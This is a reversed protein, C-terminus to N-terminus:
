RPPAGFAAVGSAELAAQDHSLLVTAGFKQELERLYRRAEGLRTEDEPVVLLRYLWPKPVDREIGAHLNATDGALVIVRAGHDALRAVVLQTGPTHGAAAVVSVGPFGPLDGLPAAPLRTVHLCPSTEISRLARRTLYYPHDAQAAGLLVEIPRASVRCLSAIGQVHDDHLHTFVIGAVRDRARGLAAGVDVLPEIPDAGIVLEIPRGFARAAPADMGADVLLIRGDAWEIAFAPFSMRAWSGANPDGAAELLVARPVFQSATNIWSVRTPLGNSASAKTVAEPPPLPTRQAKAELRAWTAAIALAVALLVVVGGVWLVLRGLFRGV